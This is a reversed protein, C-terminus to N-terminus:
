GSIAAVMDRDLMAIELEIEDATAADIPGGCDRYLAAEAVCVARYAVLIEHADGRKRTAGHVAAAAHYAKALVDTAPQTPAKRIDIHSYRTWEYLTPRSGGHDVYLRRTTVKTVSGRLWQPEREGELPAQAIEATDGVVFLQAFGRSRKVQAM